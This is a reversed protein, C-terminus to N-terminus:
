KVGRIEAAAADYIRLAQGNGEFPNELEFVSLCASLVSQVAIVALFQRREKSQQAYLAGMEDRMAQDLARYARTLAEQMWPGLPSRLARRAAGEVRIRLERPLDDYHRGYIHLAVADAISDTGSKEDTRYDDLRTLPNLIPRGIVAEVELREAHAAEKARRISEPTVPPYDPHNSMPSRFASVSM